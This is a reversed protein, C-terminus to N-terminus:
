PEDMASQRKLQTRIMLTIALGLMLSSAFFLNARLSGFSEVIYSGAYTLIIGFIQAPSGTSTCSTATNDM